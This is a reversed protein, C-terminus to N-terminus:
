CIGFVTFVEIRRVSFNCENDWRMIKVQPKFDIDKSDGIEIKYEDGDKITDKKYTTSNLIDM